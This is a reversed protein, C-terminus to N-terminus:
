FSIESRMKNWDGSLTNENEKVETDTCSGFFCFFVTFREHKENQFDGTPKGDGRV